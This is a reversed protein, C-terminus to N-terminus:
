IGDGDFDETGTYVSGPKAKHRRNRAPADEALAPGPADGAKQGISYGRRNWKRRAVDDYYAYPGQAGCTGCFYYRLKDATICPAVNDDGCFPCPKLRTM